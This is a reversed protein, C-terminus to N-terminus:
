IQTLFYFHSFIINLRSSFIRMLFSKQIVVTNVDNFLQQIIYYKFRKTDGLPNNSNLNKRGKKETYILFSRESRFIYTENFISAACSSNKGNKYNNTDNFTLNKKM